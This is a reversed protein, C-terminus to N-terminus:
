SHAPVASLRISSNKAIKLLLVGLEEGKLTTLCYYSIRGFKDREWTTLGNAELRMLVEANLAEEALAAKKTLGMEGALYLNLLFAKDKESLWEYKKPMKTAKLLGLSDLGVSSIEM